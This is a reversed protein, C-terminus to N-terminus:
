ILVNICLYMVLISCLYMLVYVFTYMSVNTNSKKNKKLDFNNSLKIFDFNLM